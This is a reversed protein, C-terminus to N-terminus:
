YVDRRYRGEAAMRDLTERGIISALAEDVSPAMGELSGCVYVAAGDAIWRGVEDAADAVAHQVYRRTPQDRSFVRDLRQLRGERLWTELEGAHFADHAATREGFLLWNRHHGAAIRAKLVARLGALGTGNGILLLPVDHAPPHFGPNRRVRLDICDGITAGATLWGSGLGPQGDPRAMRRVLLQLSGDSPLSAISYERHPLPALSEALAQTPSGRAADPDPLHSRALVDALTEAKGDVTVGTSGDLGAAALWAEVDAAAHRPGVEAIDGAQWQLDAPAEPVLAIHFAPGGPSGPNLLRQEALRWRGYEPPQWDPLETVGSLQGIHHQWHRLAAPDGGDVEVRDFLPHAGVHQLRRDLERGFGCYHDGYSTDGFALIGYSLGGLRGEFGHLRRAFARASDPAEGDGFTSVVFLMRANAALDEPALTGLARVDAALGGERLASATKWAYGEATGTQSAHVVLVPDGAAAVAAPPTAQVERALAHAARTGRRRQLYLMWGTIAFLPMLLSALMFVVVGATGFFSGRHLAFMSGGIKQRWGRDDYREHAVPELTWPDLELTNRAREHAPDADLYRFEVAGGDKPWGLTATSWAPASAEFAQWAADIDLPPPTGRDAVVDEVPAEVPAGSEAWRNVAERYWDYSWWLGTLSMVLYALLVWTGVVSHLHWLFNRGKQRWDLALWTRLSGWRRPWRLYLGSICFFILIVTSAGVIQKGVDDMVLWRHLQMTTRFFGEYRPKPLLDGTYPDVNRREGRREGEPPAFGVVAPADPAASLELSAIAADARQAQVRAVLAQPSLRDSRLEVTMVGPNLAKLLDDEFSLMAGTVGVLALVIGATIGFFWHLQFVANRFTM